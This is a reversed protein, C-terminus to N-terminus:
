FVKAQNILHAIQLCQYYNLCATFSKRSFKHELNYGGNKQTNFGENEIKWRQRGAKALNKVKEKDNKELKQDTLYIFNNSKNEIVKNAKDYKTITETCSLWYVTYEHYTLPQTIWKYTKNTHTKLKAVWDNFETKYRHKEETDNIDEQVTKLNGDQFVVVYIWDNDKCIKMFTQNPYLGDALICIPLKPFYKKLTVAMRVFANTECDQKQFEKDSENYVPESVLSISLGSSTVLKADLVYDYYKTGGNKFTKHTRSKNDNDEDSSSTGTGDIAITFYKGFLKFKHLVRQEILASVLAAKLGDLQDRPLDRLFTDVTDMHPLRLKFIKYYNKKFQEDVDNNFANRSDQKFMFMAICATILESTKYKQRQRNDTLVDM